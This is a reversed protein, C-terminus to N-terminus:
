RSTTCAITTSAASHDAGHTQPDTPLTDDNPLRDTQGPSVGPRPQTLPSGAAAVLASTTGAQTLRKFLDGYQTAQQAFGFRTAVTARGQASMQKLREPSALAQLIRDALARADHPPVLYGNAGDSVIESTGGVATAVVPVGAAFAELVVNPLGETFSPLVLLDFAPIFRDLDARYGHFTFSRTLGCKKVQEGLGDKCPGAGFLAFGVAPESRHVLEAAQIFVDFGKEPSLRGAAGVIASTPQRFTRLLKNRYLPDPDAFRTADVANAIVTVRRDPVGARRVKVGQAESVCVVHDM